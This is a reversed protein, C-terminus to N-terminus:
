EERLKIFEPMNFPKELDYVWIDNEKNFQSNSLFDEIPKNKLTPIFKAKLKKINNKKAEKIIHYLMAKEVERGM